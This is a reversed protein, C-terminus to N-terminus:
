ARRSSRGTGPRAVMTALADLMPPSTAARFRDLLLGELPEQRYWAGHTCVAPGKHAAFSCRYYGYPYVDHGKRRTTRQAVM